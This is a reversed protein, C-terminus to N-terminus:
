AAPRKVSWNGLLFSGLRKGARFAKEFFFDGTTVQPGDFETHAGYPKQRTVDQLPEVRVRDPFLSLGKGHGARHRRPLLLLFCLPGRSFRATESGLFTLLYTLSLNLLDDRRDLLL